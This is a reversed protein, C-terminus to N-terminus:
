VHSSSLMYRLSCLSGIGWMGESNNSVGVVYGIYNMLYGSCDGARRHTGQVATM